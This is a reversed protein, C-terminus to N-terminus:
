VRQLTRNALNLPKSTTRVITMRTSLSMRIANVWNEGYIRLGSDIIRFVESWHGYKAAQSLDSRLRVYEPEQFDTVVQGLWTRIVPRRVRHEDNVPSPRQILRIESFADVVEAQDAAQRRMMEIDLSTQLSTISALILLTHMFCRATVM